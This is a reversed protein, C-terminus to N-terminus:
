GETEVIKEAELGFARRDAPRTLWADMRAMLQRATLAQDPREALWEEVYAGVLILQRTRRKRERTSRVATLREIRRKLQTQRRRLDAIDPDTAIRAAIEADVDPNHAPDSDPPM